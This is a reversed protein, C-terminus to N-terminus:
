WVCWLGDPPLDVFCPSCSSSPFTHTCFSPFYPKCTTNTCSSRGLDQVCAAPCRGLNVGLILGLRVMYTGAKLTKFVLSQAYVKMVLSPNSKPM